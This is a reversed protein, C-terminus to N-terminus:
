KDMKVSLNPAFYNVAGGQGLRLALQQECAKELWQRAQSCEIVFYDAVQQESRPEAQLFPTLKSIFFSFLDDAPKREAGNTTRYAGSSPPSVTDCAMRQEGHSASSANDSVPANSVEHNEHTSASRSSASRALYERLSGNLALAEETIPSLGLGVLPINGERADEEVRVFAPVWGHRHNEVAGSWTGGKVDSDVVIAAQSMCYLYKNRDMAHAVTFRAEPSFPSILTIAGRMLAQRHRKKLVAKDLAEALIGIAKGGSELAGSMAEQDVGRADGSVVALGNAACAAGVRRAFRLGSVTADRSGVVCIADSHLLETQGAVFLIPPAGAKLRSRLKSPYNTDSRTRALVSIGLQSWRELALAMAVGRRLLSNLREPAIIDPPFEKPAISLLDAPRLGLTVLQKALRNYETLSLPRVGDHESGAFHGCLLLIAQTDLSLSDNPLM